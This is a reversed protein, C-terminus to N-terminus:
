IARGQAPLSVHFATGKGPTSVAWIRGGHHEVVKRCLALGIGTGEYDSRPHLRQFIHFIRELDQEAIGIGNDAVTIHCDDGERAASIKVIPPVGPRRFKIGNSALNLFLQGLEVPNGRVPPLKGRHIQGGSAALAGELDAVVHDVLDDLPVLRQPADDRGVRSLALVDKILLQMRSVGDSIRELYHDGDSDLQGEYRLRMMQAYSTVKRLPEQLDHSAVTAFQQLEQNSRALDRMASEMKQQLLRRTELHQSLSQTMRLGAVLGTTLLAIMVIAYQSYLVSGVTTLPLHALLSPGGLRWTTVLIAAYYALLVGMLILLGRTTARYEGAARRAYVTIGYGAAATATAPMLMAVWAAPWITAPSVPGLVALLPEESQLVFSYSGPGAAAMQQRDVFIDLGDTTNEIGMTASLAQGQPGTVGTLTWRSSIQLHLRAGTILDSDLVVTAVYETVTANDRPPLRHSDFRALPLVVKDFQIRPDSITSQFAVTSFPNFVGAEGTQLAGDDSFYWAMLLGRGSPDPPMPTVFPTSLRSSGSRPEFLPQSSVRVEGSDYWRTEQVVNTAVPEFLTDLGASANVIRTANFLVRGGTTGNPVTFGYRAEGCATVTADEEFRFWREDPAWTFDGGAIGQTDNDVPRLVPTIAAGCSQRVAESAYVDAIPIPRDIDLSVVLSQPPAVAAAAGPTAVLAAM